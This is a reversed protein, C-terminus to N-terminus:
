NQLCLISNGSKVEIRSSLMYSGNVVSAYTYYRIYVSAFVTEMHLIAPWPITINIVTM